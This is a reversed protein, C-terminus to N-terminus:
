GGDFVGSIGVNMWMQQQFGDTKGDGVSAGRSQCDVLRRMCLLGDKGSFLGQFQVVFRFSFGAGYGGKALDLFQYSGNAGHAVM